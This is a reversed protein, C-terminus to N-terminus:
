MGGNAYVSMDATNSAVDLGLQLTTTTWPMIELDNSVVAKFIIAETPLYYRGEGSPHSIVLRPNPPHCVFNSSWTYDPMLNGALDTMKSVTLTYDRGLLGDFLATPIRDQIFQIEIENGDCIIDLDDMDFQKVLHSVDIKVQFSLPIECDVNETFVVEM